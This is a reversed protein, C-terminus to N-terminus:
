VEIKSLSAECDYGMYMATMQISRELAEQKVENRTLNRSSVRDVRDGNFGHMRYYIAAVVRVPPRM